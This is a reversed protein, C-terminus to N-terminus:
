SVGYRNKCFHVTVKRSGIEMFAVRHCDLSYDVLSLPLFSKTIYFIMCSELYVATIIVKLTEGLCGVLLAALVGM